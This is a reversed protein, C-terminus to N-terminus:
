YDIYSHNLGDIWMECQGNSRLSVKGRGCLVVRSNRIIFRPHVFSSVFDFKNGFTKVIGEPSQFCSNHKMQLNNIFCNESSSELSGPTLEDFSGITDIRPSAFPRM